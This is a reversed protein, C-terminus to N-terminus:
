IRFLNIVSFINVMKRVKKIKNKAMALSIGALLYRLVKMNLKYQTRKQGKKILENFHIIVTLDFKYYCYITYFDAKCVKQSLKYLFVLLQDQPIVESSNNDIDM